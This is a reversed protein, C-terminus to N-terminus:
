FLILVQTIKLHLRKLLEGLLGWIENSHDINLVMFENVLHDVNPGFLHCGQALYKRALVLQAEIGRKSLSKANKM